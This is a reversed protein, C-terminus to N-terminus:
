QPHVELYMLTNKERGGTDHIAFPFRGTSHAEFKMMTTERPKLHLHIDYGHLHLKVAKDATWVLTIRDGQNVKITNNEAAVQGNKIDLDFVQLEGEQAYAPALIALWGIAVLVLIAGSFAFRRSCYKAPRLHHRDQFEVSM